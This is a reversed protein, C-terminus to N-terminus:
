RSAGEVVEIESYITFCGVIEFILNSQELVHEWAVFFTLFCQTTLFNYFPPHLSTKPCDTCIKFTLPHRAGQLFM